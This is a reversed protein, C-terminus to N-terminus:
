PVSLFRPTWLYILTFSGIKPATVKFSHKFLNQTGNTDALNWAEWPFYLFIAINWVPVDFLCQCVLTNEIDCFLNGTNCLNGRSYSSKSCSVHGLPLNKVNCCLDNFSVTKHLMCVFM